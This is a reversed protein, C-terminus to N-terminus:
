SYQLVGTLENRMASIAAHLIARSLLLMSTVVVM